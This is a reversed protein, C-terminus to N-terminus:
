RWSRTLFTNKFIECIKCSFVQTPTKKLYLQLAGIKFCIQSRSGRYRWTVKNVTCSFSIALLVHNSGESVYISPKKAFLTLSKSNGCFPEIISIRKKKLVLIVKGLKLTRKKKDIQAELTGTGTRIWEHELSICNTYKAIVECRAQQFLWFNGM